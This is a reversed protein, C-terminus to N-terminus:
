MDNDVMLFIDIAVCCHQQPLDMDRAVTFRVQTKM